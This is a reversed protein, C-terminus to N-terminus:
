DSAARIGSKGSMIQRYLSDSAGSIREVLQRQVPLAMARWSALEADTPQYPTLGRAQLFALADREEQRFGARLVQSSVFAAKVLRQRDRSLGDFWRKNALVVGPNIAHRTLTLHPAHEYMGMAVYMATNTAGGDILGTQLGPIVEAFPLPIIDADFAQLFAVPAEGSAARLRLGRGDEPTPIPQRAFLNWWGSDVWQIFVLGRAAFLTTVPETLYEDLM